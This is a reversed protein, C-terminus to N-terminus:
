SAALPAVCPFPPSNDAFLKQLCNSHPSLGSLSFNSGLSSHSLSGAQGARGSSSLAQRGGQPRSGAGNTNHYLYQTGDQILEQTGTFYPPLAKGKVTNRGRQTLRPDTPRYRAERALWSDEGLLTGTHTSGVGHQISDQPHRQQYKTLTYRDDGQFSHTPTHTSLPLPLMVVCVCVCVCVCLM